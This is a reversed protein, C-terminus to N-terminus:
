VTTLPLTKRFTTNQAYGYVEGFRFQTFSTIPRVLPHKRFTTEHAQTVRNGTRYGFRNGLLRFWVKDERRETTLPLTKRFTSNKLM